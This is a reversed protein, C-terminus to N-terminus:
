AGEGAAAAMRRLGSAASGREHEQVSTLRDLLEVIPGSVDSPLPRAGAAIRAAAEALTYNSHDYFPHRRGLLERVTAGLAFLDAAKRAPRMELQEPAMYWTTGVQAPYVTITSEDMGRALGLDLLVPRAWDGDRLAINAPKIDRHVTGSAHMDHVGTLLGLLLAVAQATTPWDGVRVRTALDGGPVYEFTLTPLQLGGLEVTGTALLRVVHPSSVRTLGGVERSIRAQPYAPDWIIKVAVDGHRWTDGFTGCGLLSVPGGLAVAVAAESFRPTTM